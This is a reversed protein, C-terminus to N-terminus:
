YFIVNLYDVQGNAGVLKLGHFNLTKNTTEINSIDLSLDYRSIDQIQSLIIIKMSGELYVSMDKLTFGVIEFKPFYDDSFSSHRDQTSRFSHLKATDTVILEYYKHSVTVIKADFKLSQGMLNIIFNKRANNKLIANQYRSFLTTDQGAKFSLDILQMLRISDNTTIRTTKNFGTLQALCDGVSRNVMSLNVYNSKYTASGSGEIPKKSTDAIAVSFSFLARQAIPKNEPKQMLAHTITPPSASKGAIIKELIMGTLEYGEGTWRIVNNRDIVVCYPISFVNFSDGTQRTTDNLNIADLRKKTRKFFSKAISAREDTISAFVVENSGYKKSLDNFHAFNAICPACWTAWFDLVLVKNKYFNLPTNTDLSEQFVIPPAPQNILSKKEQSFVAIPCCMLFLIRIVIKM